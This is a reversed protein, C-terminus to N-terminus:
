RRFLTGPLEGFGGGDYRSAAWGANTAGDVDADSDGVLGHRDAPLRDELLRYPPADPKHAGVEYSAVVADFYTELGHARLKALQWDRVGNTLVGLAYTEALRDLDEHANRPPSLSEIERELLANAYPEPDACDDIRAFARRVPDPELASFQEFFAEDYATLWEQPADGRVDAIADALVDRYDRSTRLLTGDLDFVIATM